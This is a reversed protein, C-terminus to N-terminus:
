SCYKNLLVWGKQVDQSWELLFDDSWAKSMRCDPPIVTFKKCLLLTQISLKLLIVNKLKLLIVNKQPLTCEVEKKNGSGDIWNKIDSPFFIVKVSKMKWTYAM